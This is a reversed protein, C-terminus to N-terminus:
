AAPQAAATAAAPRTTATTAASAAVPATLALVPVLLLLSMWLRRMTSRRVCWVSAVSQAGSGTLYGLRVTSYRSLRPVVCRSRTAACDRKLCWERCRPRIWEHHRLAIGFCVLPIHVSLSLAQMQRAGFLYRQDVVNGMWRRHRMHRSAPPPYCCTVM